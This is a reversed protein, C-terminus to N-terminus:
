KWACPGSQVGTQPTYCYPGVRPLQKPGCCDREVEFQCRTPADPLTLLSNMQMSEGPALLDFMGPTSLFGSGALRRGAVECDYSLRFRECM